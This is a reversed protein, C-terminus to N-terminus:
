KPPYNATNPIESLLMYFKIARTFHMSHIRISRHTQLFMITGKASCCQEGLDQSWVLSLVGVASLGPNRIYTLSSRLHVRLLSCRFHFSCPVLGIQYPSKWTVAPSRINTNACQPILLDVGTTARRTEPSTIRPDKRLHDRQGEEMRRLFVPQPYVAM